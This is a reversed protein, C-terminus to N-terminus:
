VNVVLVLMSSCFLRCGARAAGLFIWDLVTGVDLLCLEGRPEDDGERDGFVLIEGFEILGGGGGIAGRREREALARVFGCVCSVVCVSFGWSVASERALAITAELRAELRAGDGDM